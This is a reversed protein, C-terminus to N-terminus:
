GPDTQPDLAIAARGASASIAGALRALPRRLHGFRPRPSRIPLHSRVGRDRVLSAIERDRQRVLDQAILAHVYWIM